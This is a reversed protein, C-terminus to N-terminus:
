LFAIWQLYVDMNQRVSELTGTVKYRAGYIQTNYTKDLETEIIDTEENAVIDDIIDM